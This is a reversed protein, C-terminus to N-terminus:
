ILGKGHLHVPVKTLFLCIFVQWLLTMLQPFFINGWSHSSISTQTDLLFRDGLIGREQGWISWFGEPSCLFYSQSGGLSQVSHIHNWLKHFNKDLTGSLQLSKPELVLNGPPHLIWLSSTHACCPSVGKVLTRNVWSVQPWELSQWTVSSLIFCTFASNHSLKQYHILNLKGNLSSNLSLTISLVYLTVNRQNQITTTALQVM